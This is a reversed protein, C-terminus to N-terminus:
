AISPSSRSTTPPPTPVPTVPGCDVLTIDRYMHRLRTLLGTAADRDGINAATVAAALLLGLCDTVIHRKHAGTKKEGDYGCSAAPM